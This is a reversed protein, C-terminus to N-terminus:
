GLRPKRVEKAKVGEWLNGMFRNEKRNKFIKM